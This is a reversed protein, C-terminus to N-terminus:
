AASQPKLVSDELGSTEDHICATIHLGRWASVETENNIVIFVVSQKQFGVPKCRLPRSKSVKNGAQSM